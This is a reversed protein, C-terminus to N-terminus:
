RSTGNELEKAAKAGRQQKKKLAESLKRIYSLQAVETVFDKENMAFRSLMNAIIDETHEKLLPVILSDTMAALRGDNLQQALTELHKDADM